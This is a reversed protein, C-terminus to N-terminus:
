LVHGHHALNDGHRVVEQHGDQHVVQGAQGEVQEAPLGVGGDGGCTVHGQSYTFYVILLVYVMKM